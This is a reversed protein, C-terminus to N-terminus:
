TSTDTILHFQIENQNVSAIFYDTEDRWKFPFSLREIRAMFGKVLIKQSTLMAAVTRTSGHQVYHVADSSLGFNVARRASRTVIDAIADDM